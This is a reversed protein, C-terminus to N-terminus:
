AAARMEAVLAQALAAPLPTAATYAPHDVVLEAPSGAALAAVGEDDLVFRLFHVSFTRESLPEDPPPVDRAPFRRDGVRLGVSHHLGQLRVLEDKVRDQDPVEVMLTATFSTPGPLLREYASLEEAALSESTIGEAYLMEQAQYRLTALNEVELTVLDGVHLRRGARLAIAEARRGPRAARYAARDLVLDSVSLV